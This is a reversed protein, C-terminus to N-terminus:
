KGGTINCGWEGRTLCIDTLWINLDTQCEDCLDWRRGCTSISFKKPDEDPKLIKIPPIEKGCIDCM